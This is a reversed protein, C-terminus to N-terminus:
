EVAEEPVLEWDAEDGSIICMEPEITDAWVTVTCPCLGGETEACANCKYKSM